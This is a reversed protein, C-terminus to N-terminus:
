SLILKVIHDSRSNEPRIKNYRRPFHVCKHLHMQRGSILALYSFRIEDRDIIM